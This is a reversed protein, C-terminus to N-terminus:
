AHGLQRAHVVLIRDTRQLLRAEPHFALALVDHHGVTRSGHSDWTMIRDIRDRHAVDDPIGSQCVVFEALQQLLARSPSMALQGPLNFSRPLGAKRLSSMKGCSNLTDRIANVYPRLDWTPFRNRRTSCLLLTRRREPLLFMGVPHIM